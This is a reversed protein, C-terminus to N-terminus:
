RYAEAFQAFRWSNDTEKRSLVVYNAADGQGEQRLVSTLYATHGAYTARINIEFYESSIGYQRSNSSYNRNGGTDNGTLRTSQIINRVGSRNRFDDDDDYPREDLLNQAANLSLGKWQNGTVEEQLSTLAYVSATNVNIPLVGAVNVVTVHPLLEELVEPEFGNVLRLESVDVMPRNAARYAPSRNAYADSESLYGQEEDNSDLWDALNDALEEDLQLEVLLNRFRDLEQRNVQGDEQILNNLNYFRHLDIIRVSVEGISDIEFEIDPSAWLEELHDSANEEDVDRQDEERLALMALSEAALAYYHAQTRNIMGNVRRVDISKGVVVKGAVLTAIAFVMLVTILAVGRQRGPHQRMGISM